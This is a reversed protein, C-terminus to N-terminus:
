FMSTDTLKKLVANSTLLLITGIISNFMGVATSVGYNMDQLGLRYVYTNIVDSVDYNSANYILLIKDAGVSFVNGMRMIFMMIIMSSIGPITIHICQKWYGAGDVKAADYIEQDVSSLAALYIISGYGLGQWTGSMIYITRFYKTGNLLNDSPIGRLRCILNSIAGGTKTFDIIMSAVVVTSIFYPLYSVTQITKKFHKQKIENLLLAFIIPAPFNIVLDLVGLVITNKVDRKFYPGELFQRFNKLGVWKSRFLGKAPVYKEFAMLLGVMPAYNFIVFYALIVLLILYLVKNRRIDVAMNHPLNRIGWETRYGTAKMLGGRKKASPKKEKDMQQSRKMNKVVPDFPIYRFFSRDTLRDTGILM